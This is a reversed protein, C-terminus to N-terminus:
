KRIEVALAYKEAWRRAVDIAKEGEWDVLHPFGAVRGDSLTVKVCCGDDYIFAHECKKIM